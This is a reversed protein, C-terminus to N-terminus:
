SWSLLPQYISTCGWHHYVFNNRKYIVILSQFSIFIELIFFNNLWRILFRIIFSQPSIYCVTWQGKRRQSHLNLSINSLFHWCFFYLRLLNEVIKWNSFMPRDCRPWLTSESSDVYTCYFINDNTIQIHQVFESTM